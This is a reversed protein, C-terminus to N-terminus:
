IAHFSPCHSRKQPFHSHGLIKDGDQRELGSYDISRSNLRPTTGTKFSGIEFWTRSIDPFGRQLMPGWGALLFITLGWM